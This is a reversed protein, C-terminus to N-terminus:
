EKKKDEKVKVVEKVESIDIILSAPGTVSEIYVDTVGPVEKQLRNVLESALTGIQLRELYGVLVSTQKIRKDDIKISKKNFTNPSGMTSAFFGKTLTNPGDRDIIAWIKERVTTSNKKLTDLKTRLDVIESELEISSMKTYKEQTVKDPMWQKGPTSQKLVVNYGLPDLLKRYTSVIDAKKLGTM